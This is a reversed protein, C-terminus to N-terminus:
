FIYFLLIFYHRFGGWFFGGVDENQLRIEGPREASFGLVYLGKIPGKVCGEDFCNGKFFVHGEIGGALEAQGAFRIVSGVPPHSTPQYLAFNLFFVVRCKHNLLRRGAVM